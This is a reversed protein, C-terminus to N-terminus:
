FLFVIFLLFATLLAAGLLFAAGFLLFATLLAAGFLFAGLLFAALLLLYIEGKDAFVRRESPSNKNKSFHIFGEKLNLFAKYILTNESRESIYIKQFIPMYYPRRLKVITTKQLSAEM